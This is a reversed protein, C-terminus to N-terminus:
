CYLGELWSKLRKGVWMGETINISIEEEKFVTWDKTPKIQVVLGLIQRECVM